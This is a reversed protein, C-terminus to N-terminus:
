SKASVYADVGLAAFMPKFKLTTEAWEKDPDSDAVIGAGAYLRAQNGASVASRIAVAFVGDGNVDIWGVPSAYWGRAALEIQKIAEVAERQPYGGLAPTPHLTEVVDLISYGNALTGSIPTYLHQINSLQMIRPAAAVDLRHTLPQLQERLADVVLAHEHQDKTSNLLENALAADEDPTAGRQISGALGATRLAQDRVEILLEPTAGFFAHGPLPEILFRYTDPYRSELRGLANLPDFPRDFTVDCTRSLVVKALEGGRIRQVAGDIQARWAEQSLSYELTEVQTEQEGLMDSLTIQESIFAFEDRVSQRARAASDHGGIFQNITLWTQDDIRTVVCRPLTFYAPPFAEWVGSPEFDARFAFGGFLRPQIETTDDNDIVADRFLRRAEARITNFRDKGGAVLEAAVGYGAFAVRARRNEWYVRQSLPARRLFVSLSAQPVPRSYSYLTGRGQMAAAYVPTDQQDLMMQPTIIRLMNDKDRGLM